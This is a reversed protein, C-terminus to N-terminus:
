STSRGIAVDRDSERDMRALLATRRVDFAERQDPTSGDRLLGVAEDILDATEELVTPHHNGDHPMTHQM